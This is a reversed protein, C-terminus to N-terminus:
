DAVHCRIFHGPGVERWGPFVDKCARTSIPCGLYFPCIDKMEKLFDSAGRSMTKANARLVEDLKRRPDPLPVSKILYDTYPHHPIGKSLLSDEAISVADHYLFAEKPMVEVIVGKYMVAIRHSVFQVVPLDHSIFLYTLRHREHLDLLLNIIQAQISVDLASTPEDAVIMRPRTALARALGIRQRQGGSFEHPYLGLASTGLGVEGLLEVVREKLQKGHFLRHIKLPESLIDFVTKKPNLSSFPDQFVMQAQRRFAKLGAADLRNIDNGCFLVEGETPRELGLILRALTSKGCGSEGVLGLIRGEDISLDVKDVARLMTKGTDFLGRRIRYEKTIGKLELLIGM